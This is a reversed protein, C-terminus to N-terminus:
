NANNIKFVGCDFKKMQRPGGNLLLFIFEYKSTSPVDGMETKIESLDSMPIQAMITSFKKADNTVGCADFWYQLSDFYLELNHLSESLKPMPLRPIAYAASVHEETSMKWSIILLLLIIVFCPFLILAHFEITTSGINFQKEMFAVTNM